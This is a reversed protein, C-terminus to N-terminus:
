RTPPTACSSPTSSSTPPSRRARRDPQAPDDDHGQGRRELPLLDPHRPGRLHPPEAAHRRRHHDLARRDGQLLPRGRADPDRAGDPRHRGQPRDRDGPGQPQPDFLINIGFAKGLANYIQFISVPQPSSSRSRSHELAPQAGAAAAARRPGEEEDPRDLGAARNQSSRWTPRTCTSSSAGPRVPQHSRAPRGAPVRGPRARDGGGERVGQGERFAGALGQDQRAAALGPLQHQDPDNDLAKMYYLVATTGTAAAPLRDRGPSLNSHSTCGALIALAILPASLASRHPGCKGPNGGVQGQRRPTVGVRKAPVEPFNVFRIDVSEYGIHAVIFKSDIM